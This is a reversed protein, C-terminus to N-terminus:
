TNLAHAETHRKYRHLASYYQREAREVDRGRVVPGTIAAHEAIDPMRERPPQYDPRIHQGNEDHLDADQQGHIHTM